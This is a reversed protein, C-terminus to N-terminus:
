SLLKNSTYSINEPHIAVHTQKTSVYLVLAPVCQGLTFINPGSLGDNTTFMDMVASNDRSQVILRM